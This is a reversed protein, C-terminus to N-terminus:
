KIITNSKILNALDNRTSDDTKDYNEILWKIDILIANVQEYPKSSGFDKIGSKGVYFFKGNSNFYDNQSDFPILFANFVNKAGLKKKHCIYEGYAIQKVIDSTQPLTNSGKSPDIGYKYYKADLIYYNDELIMISDPILSSAEEEKWIPNEITWIAKPKLDEKKSQEYNDFVSQIMREWIYEFEKTGYIWSSKNEDDYNEIINLMCKLLSIENDKQTKSLKQQLCSKFLSKHFKVNPKEIVSLSVNYFWGLNRIGEYICYKHIKTILEEHNQLNKRHLLNLYILNKGSIIPKEIQITKKFDIKGGNSHTIIIDKEHLYKKNSILFQELVYLFSSLPFFSNKSSSEQDKYLTQEQARNLFKLCKLLKKIEIIKSEEGKSNIDKLNYGIPFSVTLTNDKKLLGVFGNLENSNVVQIELEKKNTIDQSM